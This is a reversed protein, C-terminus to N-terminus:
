KKSQLKKLYEDVMERISMHETGNTELQELEEKSLKQCIITFFTGRAIWRLEENKLQPPLHELPPQLGFLRNDKVIELGRRTRRATPSLGEDTIILTGEPKLVRVWEKLTAPIDAYTNIGGSHTIIDFSEDAFPLGKVQTHLFLAEIGATEFKRRAVHLMGDSLDVGVLELDVDPHAEKITLFAAGTGTSIDLVRQFPKVNIRKALKLFEEHLNVGLWRDYEKVLEDYHEAMENYEFVWKADEPSIEERRVFSPIGEIIPFRHSSDKGCSLLDGAANLNLEAHCKPCRLFEAAKLFVSEKM